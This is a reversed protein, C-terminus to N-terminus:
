KEEKKKKWTKCSVVYEFSHYQENLDYAYIKANEDIDVNNSGCGENSYMVKGSRKEIVDCKKCSSEFFLGQFINACSITLAVLVLAVSFQFLRTKYRNM